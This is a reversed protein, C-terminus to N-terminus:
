HLSRLHKQSAETERCIIKKPLVDATNKSSFQDREDFKHRDLDMLISFYLRYSTHDIMKNSLEKFEYM